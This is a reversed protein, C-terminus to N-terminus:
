QSIIPVVLTQVIYLLYSIKSSLYFTQDPSLILHIILSDCAWTMPTWGSPVVFAEVVDTCPLWHLLQLSMESLVMVTASFTM